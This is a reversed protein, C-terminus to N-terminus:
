QLVDFSFTTTSLFIVGHPYSRSSYQEQGKVPIYIGLNHGIYILVTVILWNISYLITLIYINFYISYLTTTYKHLQKVRKM